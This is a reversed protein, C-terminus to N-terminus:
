VTGRLILTDETNIYNAAVIGGLQSANTATTASGASTAYTANQANTSNTANGVTMSPYTGNARALSINNFQVDSAGVILSNIGSWPNSGIGMYLRNITNGAGYTGIGAVMSGSTKYALGRAWGGSIRDTEWALVGSNTLTFDGALSINGSITGGTLPLCGTAVGIFQNSM